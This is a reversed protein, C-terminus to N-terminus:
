KTNNQIQTLTTNLQSTAQSTLIAKAAAAAEPLGGSASRKGFGFSVQDTNTLAYGALPGPGKFNVISWTPGTANINKLLVFKRYGSFANSGSKSGTPKISTDLDSSSHYAMAVTDVIGLNGYLPNGKVMPCALTDINDHLQARIKPDIARIKKYDSLDFFYTASFSQEHQIDLKAGAGFSLVGPVNMYTANPALTGDDNVTLDIEVFAVLGDQEILYALNPNAIPDTLQALECNVEDVITKVSPRGNEDQPVDFTSVSACGALALSCCLILCYVSSMIM